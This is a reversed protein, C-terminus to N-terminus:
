LELEQQLNQKKPGYRVTFTMGGNSEVAVEESRLGAFELVKLTAKLQIDLGTIPQGTTGAALALLKESAWRAKSKFIRKAEDVGADILSEIEAKLAPKIRGNSIGYVTAISIDYKTAIQKTTLEAAALDRCLGREDYKTNHKKQKKATM